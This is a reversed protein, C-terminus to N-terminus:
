VLLGGGYGIYADAIRKPSAVALLLTTRLGENLDRIGIEAAWQSLLDYGDRLSCAVIM